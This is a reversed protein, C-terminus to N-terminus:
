RAARGSEWLDFLAEALECWNHLDTSLDPKGGDIRHQLEERQDRVAARIRRWASLRIAKLPQRPTGTFHDKTQRKSGDRPAERAARESDLSM